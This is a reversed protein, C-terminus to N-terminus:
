LKIQGAKNRTSKKRKPEVRITMNNNNFDCNSEGINLLNNHFLIHDNNTKGLCRFYALSMAVQLIVMSSHAAWAWAWAPAVHRSKLLDMCTALKKM